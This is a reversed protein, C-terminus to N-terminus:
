RFSAEFVCECSSFIYEAAISKSCLLVRRSFIILQMNYCEIISMVSKNHYLTNQLIKRDRVDIHFILSHLINQM